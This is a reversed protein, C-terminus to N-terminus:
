EKDKKDEIKVAASCQILEIGVADEVEIIKGSKANKGKGLGCDRLIKVKMKTERKTFYPAM